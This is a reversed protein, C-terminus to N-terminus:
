FGIYKMMAVVRAFARNIKKQSLGDGIKIASGNLSRSWKTFIKSTVFFCAASLARLLALIGMLFNRCSLQAVVCVLPSNKRYFQNDISEEHIIRAALKYRATTLGERMAKFLSLRGM